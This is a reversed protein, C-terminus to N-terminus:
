RNAFHHFGEDGDDLQHLKYDYDYMQDNANKWVTPAAIEEM